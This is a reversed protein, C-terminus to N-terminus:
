SGVFPSTYTTPHLTKSNSDPSTAEPLHSKQEHIIQAANKRVPFPHSTHDAFPSDTRGEL